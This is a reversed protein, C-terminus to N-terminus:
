HKEGKESFMRLLICGNEGLVARYVEHIDEKYHAKIEEVIEHAHSDYFESFGDRDKKTVGYKMCFHHTEIELGARIKAIAVYADLLEDPYFFSLKFLKLVKDELFDACEAKKKLRLLDIMDEKMIEMGTDTM